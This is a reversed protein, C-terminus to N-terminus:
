VAVFSSTHVTMTGRRSQTRVGIRDRNGSAFDPPVGGTRSPTYSFRRIEVRSPRRYTATSVASARLIPVPSDARHATHSARRSSHPPRRAGCLRRRHRGRHALFRRSGRVGKRLIPTWTCRQMDPHAARTVRNVRAVVTYFRGCNESPTYCSPRTTRTTARASSQDDLM